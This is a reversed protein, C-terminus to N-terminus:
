KRLKIELIGTIIQPNAKGKSARMVQGMFFGILKDKGNRYAEAEAPNDRIVQDVIEEIYGTDSVQRLKLKDVLETATDPHDLMNLFIKKAGNSNIQNSALLGLLEALRGPSIPFNGIDSNKERVWRLIEGMVWNSVLKPQNLERIVAEFYDALEKTATLIDADYEPIQYTERFRVKRQQPLEPIAAKLQTISTESVECPVLDPEPFYRYDHAEEKTRMIRAENSEADWLLTAQEIRGGAKLINKQRNIEFALARDVHRFSNMNKLETKTGLVHTGVERISINADCRLSGEEMNGDCINLYQLIQRLLKLYAVAEGPHRLDPESVIEILPTGCRNLDILSTNLDVYQEDHVSKGADEELHIRNIGIKRKHGDFEIELWGNQCVPQDYQSIQYGKPLDPYFYNKRSFISRNAISCNTAIGMKIAYDLALQNMVPLAGPLGLCVPCTNTNPTSGFKNKCACFIKTETLLQAHVELGIIVEFESM